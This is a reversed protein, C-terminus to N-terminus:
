GALLLQEDLEMVQPHDAHRSLLPHRRLDRVARLGRATGTGAALTVAQRAHRCTETLDGLDAHAKGLLAQYVARSRVFTGDLGELTKGIMTRGEEARGLVILCTGRYGIYAAESFFYWPSDSEPEAPLLVEARELARAASDYHGAYAHARGEIAALWARLAAPSDRSVRTNAARALTVAEAPDGGHTVTFSLWGVMYSALAEDGVRRAAHFAQRYYRGARDLDDLDLWLWALFQCLEAILRYVGTLGDPTSAQSALRTLLQLQSTVPEVLDRPGLLDDLRRYQQLVARLHALVLGDSLADARPGLWRAPDLPQDIAALPEGAPIRPLPRLPSSHKWRSIDRAGAAGVDRTSHTANANRVKDFFLQDTPSLHAHDDQDLLSHIDTDYAAALLSLMRPTPRRGGSPWTELDSLRAGTLGARGYPDAGLDAAHANIHEAAEKLTWGLALRYARRPRLGYRDGFEAAVEHHSLGLDRLRARLENQEVRQSARSM